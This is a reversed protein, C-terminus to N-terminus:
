RKQRLVVHIIGFVSSLWSHIASLLCFKVAKLGLHGLAIHTPSLKERADGGHTQTRHRGAEIHLAGHCRWFVASTKTLTHRAPCGTIHQIRALDKVM